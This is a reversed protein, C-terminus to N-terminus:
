IKELLEKIVKAPHNNIDYEWFRLLTYGSDTAIKNKIKDYKLNQRQIPTRKDENFFQPNCHYFDGDVEILIKQNKIKFDYDCNDVTYQREHEISADTLFTQFKDELKSSKNKM